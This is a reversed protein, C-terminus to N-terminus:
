FSFHKALDPPAWNLAYLAAREFPVVTTSQQWVPSAPFETLGAILIATVVITAGRLLGFLMGLTRDTGTLGTKDLLMSILHNLIGIAILALVLVIVFGAVTRATAITLYPELLGAAVHAYSSAAWFAAVWAVLSLVERVFGRFFSIVTSLLIVCVIAIDLWNMM